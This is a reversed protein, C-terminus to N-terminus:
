YQRGCIIVKNLVGTTPPVANPHYNFNIYNVSAVGESSGVFMFYSRLLPDVIKINITGPAIEFWNEGDNSVVLNLFNDLASDNGTVLFQLSFENLASVDIGTPGAILLKQVTLACKLERNYTTSPM